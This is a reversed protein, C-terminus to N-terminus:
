ESEEKSPRWLPFDDNDIHDWVMARCLEIADTKRVKWRHKGSPTRGPDVEMMDGWNLFRGDLSWIQVAMNQHGDFTYHHICDDFRIRAYSMEGDPTKTTTTHVSKEGHISPKHSM